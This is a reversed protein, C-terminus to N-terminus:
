GVLGRCEGIARGGVTNVNPPPADGFRARPANHLCVLNGGITNGDVETSDPQGDDGPRSGVNHSIVVNGDVHNRLAGIWGGHWGWLVLSGHINMNKVPFSVGVAQAGPGGGVSIVSGGVTVATLYMTQPGLALIDGGVTDDTTSLGCPPLPPPGNAGPACGLALTAGQHVVVEDGVHVTGLSFADLCSGPALRLNSRVSLTAGDAVYANGRVTLNSYHGSLAKGPSPCLPASVPDASAVSVGVGCLVVMSSMGLGAILAGTPLLNRLKV